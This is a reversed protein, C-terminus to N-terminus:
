RECTPMIVAQKNGSIFNVAGSKKEYFYVDWSFPALDTLYNINFLSDDDLKKSFAIINRMDYNKSKNFSIDELKDRITGEPVVKKYNPFKGHNIIGSNDDCHAFIIEKATNVLVKYTGEKIGFDDENVPRLLHIRRGDTAAMVLHDNEKECLVFTMFYRIEDRSIANTLFKFDSFYLPMQEKEVVFFDDYGKM